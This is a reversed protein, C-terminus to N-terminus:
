MKVVSTVMFVNQEKLVSKINAVKSRPVVIFMVLRKENNIGQGDLVTVRLSYDERLMKVIGNQEKNIVAQILADGLSLKSEIIIGALIGTGYAIAYILLYIYNEKVNDMVVALAIIYMATDIAGIIPAIIKNGQAIFMTQLTSLTTESARLAFILLATVVVTQM